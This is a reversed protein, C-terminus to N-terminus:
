CNSSNTREQTLRPHNTLNEIITGISDTLQDMSEIAIQGARTLEELNPLSKQQRYVRRYLRLMDITIAITRDHDDIAKM